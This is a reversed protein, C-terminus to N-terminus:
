GIQDIAGPSVSTEDVFACSIALNHKRTGNGKAELGSRLM